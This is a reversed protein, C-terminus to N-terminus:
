GTGAGPSAGLSTTGAANHIHVTGDYIVSTNQAASAVILSLSHDGDAVSATNWSITDSVSPPCALFNTYPCSAVYDKQAVVNGDVRLQVLRVGSSGEAANYSLSEIGAM